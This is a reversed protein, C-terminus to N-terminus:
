SVKGSAQDCSEFPTGPLPKMADLDRQLREGITEKHSFLIDNQRKRCKAELDANFEEWRAFRPIPVMYNRRTFGVIKEVSGKDNGEGLRGYRDRLQYHSQLASFLSARKRTGYPVRKACGCDAFRKQYFQM